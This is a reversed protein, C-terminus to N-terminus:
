AAQRAHRAHRLRGDQALALLQRNTLERVRKHHHIRHAKLIAEVRTAGLGPRTKLLAYVTLVGARPDHIADHLPLGARVERRLHAANTRLTNAARLADLPQSM